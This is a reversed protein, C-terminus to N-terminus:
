KIVQFVRTTGKDVAWTVAGDISAPQCDRALLGSVEDKIEGLMNGEGDILVYKLGNNNIQDFDRLLKSIMGENGFEQWLVMFKDDNIKVLCPASATKGTGAYNTLKIQKVAEADSNDKASVLIYADRERNVLGDISQSNYSLNPTHEISNMTVIYSKDSIEFGGVSVGTCNAGIAGPINFLDIETRVGEGEKQLVVSRPYGDGHDVYVIDDGDYKVFQNFSHSVHNSQFAGLYNTATMSNTDIVISLQSQHNLGDETRYRKRSTHIVLEDGNEDMRVCGSHFPEVTYCAKVAAAGIRNFAKDYKVIRIVEKNDDEDANNQGFVIYNYKEGSYFGGFIELETPVNKTGVLEYSGKKYTDVTIMNDHGSVVSVTSDDNECIYSNMVYAWRNSNSGVKIPAIDYVKSIDTEREVVVSGESLKSHVNICQMYNNWSVHFGITDGLDRLKYYNSDNITYAEVDCLKGDVMLSANSKTAYVPTEEEEAWSISISPTYNSDTVSSYPTNTQLNITQTAEDWGVDFQSSTGTFIDALYRLKYYNMGDINYACEDQGVASIGNLEMTSSTEVATYASAGAASLTLASLVAASVGVTLKKGKKM